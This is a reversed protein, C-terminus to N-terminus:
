DTGLRIRVSKELSSMPLSKEETTLQFQTDDEQEITSTSARQLKTEYKITTMTSLKKWKPMGNLQM